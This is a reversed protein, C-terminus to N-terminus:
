VADQKNEGSNTFGEEPDQFKLARDEIRGIEKIQERDPLMRFYKLMEKENETMQEPDSGATESQGTENYGFLENPSVELYQIIELLKYISPETGKKWNSFTSQRLGIEKELKYATVGKEKLIKELNDIIKM